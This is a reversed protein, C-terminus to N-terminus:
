QLIKLAHSRANAQYAQGQEHHLPLTPASKAIPRRGLRPVIYLKAIRQYERATSVKRKSKVHETMFQDLVAALSKDAKTKDRDDAPDRGAAIEGLL